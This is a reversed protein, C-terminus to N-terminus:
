AERSLVKLGVIGAIIIAICVVRPWDRLEGMFAMGYIVTGVAGIGTWVAYATGLPLRRMAFSLLYFSLLMVVVTWVSTWLRTFGESKKLGIAWIVECIGAALLYIWAMPSLILKVNWADREVDRRSKGRRGAYWGWGMIWSLRGWDMSFRAARIMAM